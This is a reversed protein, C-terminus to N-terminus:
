FMTNSRQDTKVTLKLFVRGVTSLHFIPSLPNLQDGKTAADKASGGQAVANLISEAIVPGQGANIATVFNGATVDANGVASCLYVDLDTVLFSLYM